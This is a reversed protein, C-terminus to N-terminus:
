KEEKKIGSIAYHAKALGKLLKNIPKSGRHRSSVGLRKVEELISSIRKKEKIVRDPIDVEYNGFPTVKTWYKKIKAM